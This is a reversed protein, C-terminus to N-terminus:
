QKGNDDEQLIKNEAVWDAYDKRQRLKKCVENCLTDCYINFAQIEACVNESKTVVVEKEFRHTEENYVSQIVYDGDRQILRAIKWDTIRPYLQTEEM